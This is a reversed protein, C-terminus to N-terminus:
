ASCLTAMASTTSVQLIFNAAKSSVIRLTGVELGAPSKLVGIVWVVFFSFRATGKMMVDATRSTSLLPM